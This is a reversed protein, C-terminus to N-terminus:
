DKSQQWHWIETLLSLLHVDKVFCLIMMDSVACILLWYSWPMKELDELINVLLLQSCLLAVRPAWPMIEPSCILDEVSWPQYVNAGVILSYQLEERKSKGKNWNELLHCMYFGSPFYCHNTLKNYWVLYLQPSRHTFWVVPSFYSATYCVDFESIKIRIFM